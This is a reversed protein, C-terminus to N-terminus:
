IVSMQTTPKWSFRNSIRQYRPQTGDLGLASLRLTAQVGRQRIREISPLAPQRRETGPNPLVRAEHLIVALKRAVAVLARKKANGGRAALEIEGADYTVTRDLHVWFTVRVGATRAVYADGEKSIRIKPRSNGSERRKPRWDSTPRADRSRRLRHPDEVTLVNTSARLTGVGHVQKRLDTEPCRQKRNARDAPRIGPHAREAIGGRGAVAEGLSFPNGSGIAVRSRPMSGFARRYSEGQEDLVCYRSSWDGMWGITLRGRRESEEDSARGVISHKRPRDGKTQVTVANRMPATDRM